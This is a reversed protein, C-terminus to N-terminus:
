VYMDMSNLTLFMHTTQKTQTSSFLLPVRKKLMLLRILFIFLVFILGRFVLGSLHSVVMNMYSQVKQAFSIKGSRILDLITVVRKSTKYNYDKLIM